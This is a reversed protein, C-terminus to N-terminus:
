TSGMLFGDCGKISVAFRTCFATVTVDDLAVHKRVSDL